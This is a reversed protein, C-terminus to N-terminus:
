GYTESLRIQRHTVRELQVPNHSTWVCCRQEDRKLWRDIAAEIATAAAADLSATPEDLLLLTPNLLLARLFAVIQREGGSLYTTQQILFDPKRGFTALLNLLTSRDFMKQQHLRLRFPARIADEVTGEAMAPRQPLYMVQSRYAPINWDSLPRDRFQLQGQQLPELACLTRLLVTKGSGSPGVLAVRESPFISFSLDRWLWRDPQIRHSIQSAELLATPMRHAPIVSSVLLLDWQLNHKLM